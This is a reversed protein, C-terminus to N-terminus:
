RARSEQGGYRKSEALQDDDPRRAPNPTEPAGDVGCQMTDHVHEADM